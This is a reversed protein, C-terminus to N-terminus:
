IGSVELREELTLADDEATSTMQPSPGEFSVPTFFQPSGSSQRMKCRVYGQMLATVAYTLIMFGVQSCVRERSEAAKQSYTAM